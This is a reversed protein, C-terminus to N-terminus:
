EGARGGAPVGQKEGDVPPRELDLAEREAVLRDGSRHGFDALARRPDHIPVHGSEISRGAVPHQPRLSRIPM